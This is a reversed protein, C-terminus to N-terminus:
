NSLKRQARELTEKFKKATRVQMADEKEISRKLARSMSKRTPTHLYRRDEIMRYVVIGVLVLAIALALYLM